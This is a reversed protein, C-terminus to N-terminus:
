VTDPESRESFWATRLSRWIPMRITIPWAASFTAEASATTTEEATFASLGSTIRARSAWIGTTGRAIISASSIRKLCPMAM